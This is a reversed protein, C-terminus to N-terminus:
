TLRVMPEIAEPAESCPPSGEGSKKKLQCRGVLGKSVPFVQLPKLVKVNQCLPGAVGLATCAGHGISCRSLSHQQPQLNRRAGLLPLSLGGNSGPGLCHLAQGWKM